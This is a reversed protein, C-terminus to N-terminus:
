KKDTKEEAKKEVKRKGTWEGSAQGAYDAEGKMTDKSIKGKYVVKNGDNEFAFEVEDGEVKGIVAAEGFQGKYQGTIKEGAQKLTFVPTGTNGGIDIEVDWVGTVDIKAASWTGDAQGAFDVEGKMTGGAIKGTYVVKNGDREISFEVEDGKVKGTVEAEGFQGKYQGTLKEGAQKFSFFPAGTNGGIDVEFSWGGSIDNKGKDDDARAVNASIAMLVVVLLSSVIRSM